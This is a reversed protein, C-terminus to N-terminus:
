LPEDSIETIYQRPRPPLLYVATLAAAIALGVYPQWLAIVLAVSYVAFSGVYQLTLFRM